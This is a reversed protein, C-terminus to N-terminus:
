NPEPDGLWRGAALRITAERKGAILRNGFRIGAASELRQRGGGKTDVNFFGVAAGREKVRANERRVDVGLRSGRSLDELKDAEATM